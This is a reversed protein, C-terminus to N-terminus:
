VILERFQATHFYAWWIIWLNRLSATFKDEWKINYTQENSLDSNAWTYKRLENQIWSITGTNESLTENDSVSKKENM